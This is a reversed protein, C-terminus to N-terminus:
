MAANPQRFAAEMERRVRVALNDPDYEVDEWKLRQSEAIDTKLKVHHALGLPLYGQKLSAEAPTQKGWVCFGGEGDLIEGAKLKRKATAVVDSNFMIPAGTPEKRLAASAVSIGLELGIMHIPRYLSAYKGTKDPLMSYERFCEESYASDTEFVVYTGMVLSQPVDTGDRYVSSTVETVGPRELVGGDSKPKCIEAHEFRTAPPFSLGESQAHLGTANCVATMEIGSKTGDVFSNFMKPNISNRDKIKMYKDLIDWVTDPTSQHYTPHYRTGKGAAVVKFGAARAWDVHDAILAPQDGWALSYVVGAQRAKRALIPGAVADAEVNVMVIHKGNEIAKIAFRIGAGPDGTAEIIVEIAPHTILADANDTVITRGHKLADDISTAAYQEEPWCGLKLQSRARATNLDAVGVLHMGDTQRVQSLFMLGFKGAGILGITIPKDAAKRELLMRHLNM